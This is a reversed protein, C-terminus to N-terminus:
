EHEIEGKLSEDWQSLLTFFAHLAVLQDPALADIKSPV